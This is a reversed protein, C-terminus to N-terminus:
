YREGVRTLSFRDVKAISAISDRYGFVVGDLIPVYGKPTNATATYWSIKLPGHSPFVREGRCILASGDIDLKLAVLGQPEEPPM